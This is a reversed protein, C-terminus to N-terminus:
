SSQLSSGCTNCFKFSPQSLNGCKQCSISINGKEGTNDTSSLNLAGFKTSNTTPRKLHFLLNDMEFKKSLLKIQKDISITTVPTEIIVQLLTVKLEIGLKDIDISKVEKEDHIQLKNIYINSDLQFRFIVSDNDRGNVRKVFKVFPKLSIFEVNCNMKTVGSKFHTNIGISKIISEKYCPEVNKVIEEITKNAISSPIAHKNDGDQEREQKYEKAQKHWNALTRVGDLQQFKKNENFAFDLAWRLKTQFKNDSDINPYDYSIAM